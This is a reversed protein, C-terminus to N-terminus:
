FRSDGEESKKQESVLRFRKSRLSNACLGRTFCSILVVQVLDIFSGNDLSVPRSRGTLANFLFFNRSLVAIGWYLANKFRLSGSSPEQKLQSSISFSTFFVLVM